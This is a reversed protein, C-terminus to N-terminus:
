IGLQAVPRTSHRHLVRAVLKKSACLYNASDLLDSLETGDTLTHSAGTLAPSAALADEFTHGPRAARRAVDALLREGTLFLPQHRGVAGKRNEGRSPFPVGRRSGAVAGRRVRPGGGVVCVTITGSQRVRTTM